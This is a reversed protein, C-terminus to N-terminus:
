AIVDMPGGAAYYSVDESWKMSMPIYITSDKKMILEFRSAEMLQVRGRSDM